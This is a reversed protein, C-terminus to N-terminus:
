RYYRSYDNRPYEDFYKRPSSTYKRPSSTYRRPSSTYRRPSRTNQEYSYRNMLNYSNPTIFRPLPIKERPKKSDAIMKRMMQIADQISENEFAEPGWILETAKIYTEINDSAIQIGEVAFLNILDINKDTVIKIGNGMNDMGSVNLYQGYKLNTYQDVISM